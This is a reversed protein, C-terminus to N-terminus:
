SSIKEDRRYAEPRGKGDMVSKVIKLMNLAANTDRNHILKCKENNCRVLGWCIEKEGKKWPKKSKVELFTECEHECKNCLKSTYYEDILYVEYGAKRLIDRIKKNITPEKGKFNDKKSYDGIIVICGEPSGYIKKFENVMESESRQTNIYANMRLKRHINSNYHIFTRRNVENKKKCYKMFEKIENTRSNFKSIESELEEASIQNITKRKKLEKRIKNYKKLKTEVRRQNQTYRFCRNEKTKIIRKEKTKKDIITTEVSSQKSVCHMIDEHGVDNTIKKRQKMAETIEVEEIYKDRNENLEKIKKQQWSNLKIPNGDVVKILLVSCGIGDTKIMKNFKYCRREFIKEETKFHQNWHMNGDEEVRELAESINTTIVLNILSSTDITIYKPVISSRQPIIQYLKTQYEDNKSREINLKEIESNIYFMSKLYDQTKSKIDYFINDKDFKDKQIINKRHKTIWQHYMKDSDFKEDSIKLLDNKIKRYKQHLEKMKQKMIIKNKNETKIEKIQEYIKFTANVFKNVYDIFHESINNEINKVIDIAEYSLTYSLKNINIIDEEKVCKSYFKKYFLQLEELEPAVIKRGRRNSNFTIVHFIHKIFDTTIKPFEESNNFKHLLFMKLFQNAQIVIKNVKLVDDDIKQILEENRILNKLPAKSVVM